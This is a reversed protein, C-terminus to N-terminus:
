LGPLDCWWGAGYWPCSCRIIKFKTVDLVQYFVGKVHVSAPATLHFLRLTEAKEPGDPVPAILGQMPDDPMPTRTSPTAFVDMALKRVPLLGEAVEQASPRRGPDEGLMAQM